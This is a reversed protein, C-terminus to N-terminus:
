QKVAIFSATYGAAAGDHPKAREVSGVLAPIQNLGNPWGHALYGYYDYEWGATDTGPRGSGVINVTLPAEPSAQSVQGNLDLGGSGWDITGTLHNDPDIHFDFTAEAFFLAFATKPDGTVLTRNNHFSRYVWKGDLAKAQPKTTSGDSFSPTSWLSCTVSLTLLAFRFLPPMLPWEPSRLSEPDISGSSRSRGLQYLGQDSGAEM